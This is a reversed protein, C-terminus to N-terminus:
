RGNGAGSAGEMSMKHELQSRLQHALKHVARIKEM